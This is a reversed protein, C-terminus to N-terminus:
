QWSSSSQSPPRFSDLEVCIELAPFCFSTLCHIISAKSEPNRERENREEEGKYCMWCKLTKNGANCHVLCHPTTVQCLSALPDQPVFSCYRRSLVSWCILSRIQKERKQVQKIQESKFLRVKRSLEPSSPFFTLSRQHGGALEREQERHRGRKRERHMLIGHFNLSGITGFPPTVSEQM